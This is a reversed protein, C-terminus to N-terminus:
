RRTSSDKGSKIKWDMLPHRIPLMIDSHIGNTTLYIIETKPDGTKEEPYTFPSIVLFILIYISIGAFLLEFFIRISGALINWAKKM